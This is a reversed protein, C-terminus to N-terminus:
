LLPDLTYLLYVDGFSQPAPLIALLDDLVQWDSANLLGPEQRVFDAGSKYFLLHTFGQRKWASLIDGSNGLTWRDMRWRDIWPDPVASIPAYFGRPEWLMLVRSEPPLIALSRIAPSYWGLSADLFKERSQAGTIVAIPNLRASSNIDQWVALGIVLLGIAGAVRRLRVGSLNIQQM